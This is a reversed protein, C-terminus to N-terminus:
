DIKKIPYASRQNATSIVQQHRDGVVQLRGEQAGQLAARSLLLLLQDFLRRRQRRLVIDLRGAGEDLFRGDLLRDDFNILTQSVLEVRALVGAVFAPSVVVGQDKGKLDIDEVDM